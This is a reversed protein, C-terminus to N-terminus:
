VGKEQLTQWAEASEVSILTVRGCKFPKLKGAKIQQYVKTRCIGYARSFENIRYNRKLISIESM